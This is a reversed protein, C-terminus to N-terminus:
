NNKKIRKNPTENKRDEIIRKIEIIGFLVVAAVLILIAIVPHTHILDM